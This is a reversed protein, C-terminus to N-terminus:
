RKTNMRNKILLIKYLGKHDLHKGEFMLSAVKCFDQYDLQKIGQISNVKFIPIIINIIDAFNHVKFVFANKVTLTFSDV